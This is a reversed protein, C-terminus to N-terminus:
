EFVLRVGNNANLPYFAYAMAEEDAAVEVITLLVDVTNNGSTNMVGTPGFVLYFTSRNSASSTLAKLVEKEHNQWNERVSESTGTTTPAKPLDSIDKFVYIRDGVPIESRGIVPVKNSWNTEGAPLYELSMLTGQRQGGASPQEFAVRAQTGYTAAYDRAANAMAQVTAMAADPGTQEAVVQLIGFTGVVLVLMIGIVTLLEALTFGRRGKM